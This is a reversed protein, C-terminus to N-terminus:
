RPLGGVMSEVPLASPKQGTGPEGCACSKYESWQGAKMPAGTMEYFADWPNPGVSTMAQEIIPGTMGVYLQDSLAQMAARAQGAAHRVAPAAMAYGKDDGPRLPRGARASTVAHNAAGDGLVARLLTRLCRSCLRPDAALARGAAAGAVSAIKTVCDEIASLLVPDRMADPHLPGLATVCAGLPGGDDFEVGVRGDPLYAATM